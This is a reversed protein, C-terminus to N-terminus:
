PRIKVEQKSIVYEVSYQYRSGRSVSLVYFPERSEAYEEAVISLGLGGIFTNDYPDLLPLPNEDSQHLSIGHTTHIPRPSNNPTDVTLKSSVQATVQEDPEREEGWGPRIRTGSSSHTYVFQRQRQIAHSGYGQFHDERSNDIVDMARFWREIKQAFGNILESYGHFEADESTYVRAQLQDLVVGSSGVVALPAEKRGAVQGKQRKAM